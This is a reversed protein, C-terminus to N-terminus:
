KVKIAWGDSWDGYIKKGNVTKYARVKIHYWHGSIIHKKGGKKNSIKIKGNKIQNKKVIFSHNETSKWYLDGTTGKSKGVLVQYGTAEPVLKIKTTITEKQPSEPEKIQVQEPAVIVKITKKNSDTSCFRGTKSKVTLKATGCFRKKVTIKGNNSVSVNKNNSSYSFKEGLESSPMAYLYVYQDRSSLPVKLPETEEVDWYGFRSKQTKKVNVSVFTEWEWITSVGEDESYKTKEFEFHLTDKGPKLAQIYIPYRGNKYEGFDIDVIADHGVSWTNIEEDVYLYIIKRSHNPIELEVKKTSLRPHLDIPEDASDKTKRVTLKSAASSVTVKSYSTRSSYNSVKCFYYRGDYSSPVSNLQLTSETAGEIKTGSSTNGTQNYYWQYELHSGSANVTFTAPSLAEVEQSGTISEVSVPTDVVYWSITRSDSGAYLTATFLGTSKDPGPTIGCYGCYVYGKKRNNIKGNSKKGDAYTIVCQVDCDEDVTLNDWCVSSKTGLPIYDATTTAWTKRNDYPCTTTEELRKDTVFLHVSKIAQTALESDGNQHETKTDKEEEPSQSSEVGSDADVDAEAYVEDAGTEQLEISQKQEETEREKTESYAVEEAQKEEKEKLSVTAASDTDAGGMEGAWAATGPCSLCMCWVLALAVVMRIHKRM